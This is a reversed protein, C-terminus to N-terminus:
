HLFPFYNNSTSHHQHQHHTSPLFTSGQSLDLSSPLPLQLQQELAVNNLMYQRQQEQISWNIDHPNPNPGQEQHSTQRKFQQYTPNFLAGSSSSAAAEPRTVRPKRPGQKLTRNADSDIMESHESTATASATPSRRSATVGRAKVPLSLPDRNRPRQKPIKNNESHSRM